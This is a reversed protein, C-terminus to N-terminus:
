RDRYKVEKQLLYDKIVPEKQSNLIYVMHREERWIANSLASEDTTSPDIGLPICLTGVDQFGCSLYLKIAHENNLVTTLEIADLSLEKATDQLFKMCTRGIGKNQYEDAVCIGLTPIHLVQKGHLIERSIGWLALYAIPIGSSNLVCFSANEGKKTKTIAVKYEPVQEDTGWHYPSFLRKTKTGLMESFRLLLNEDGKKLLRVQFSGVPTNLEM